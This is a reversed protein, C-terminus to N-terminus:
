RVYDSKFIGDIEKIVEEKENKITLLFELLNVITTRLNAISM